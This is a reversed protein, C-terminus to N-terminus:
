RSRRRRPSRRVPASGPPWSPAPDTPLWRRPRTAPGTPRGGLPRVPTLAVAPPRAPAAPPSPNAAERAPNSRNTFKRSPVSAAPSAWASNSCLPFAWLDALIKQITAFLPRVWTALWYLWTNSMAFKMLWLTLAMLFIYGAAQWQLLECIGEHTLGTNVANALWQAWSAPNATIGPGAKTIAESTSVVSLYYDGIPVHQSDTIGTWNLAGALTSAAAPPAAIM